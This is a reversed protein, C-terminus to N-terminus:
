DLVGDYINDAVPSDGNHGLEKGLDSYGFPTQEAHSFHEVDRQILHEEVV